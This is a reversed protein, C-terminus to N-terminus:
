KHRGYPRYTNISCSGQYDILLGMSFGNCHAYWKGKNSSSDTGNKVAYKKVRRIEYDALVIHHVAYNGSILDRTLSAGNKATFEVNKLEHCINIKFSKM